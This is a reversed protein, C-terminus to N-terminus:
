PLSSQMAAYVRNLADYTYTVMENPAVTPDSQDKMTLINGLWDYSYTLDLLKVTTSQATSYQATTNATKGAAGKVSWASYTNTLTIPSTTSPFQIQTLRGLYDHQYNSAYTTIRSPEPGSKGSIGTSRGFDDYTFTVTERNPYVMQKVSDDPHYSWMWYYKGLDKSNEVDSIQRVQEIVRGRRDYKLITYGTADGVKTLHGIGASVVTPDDLYTDYRYEVNKNQDPDTRGACKFLSSNDVGHTRALPRNLEDYSTATICGMQDTQTVLNGYADYAYAWTGMNPDITKVKRGGVDYFTQGQYNGISYKTMRNLADYEYTATMGNPAVSEIINGWIDKKMTTTRNVQATAHTTAETIFRESAADFRYGTNVVTTDPATVATVRGMFDYTTLTQPDTAYLTKDKVTSTVDSTLKPLAETVVRGAWDYQVNQYIASNTTQDLVKIAPTITQILRGIGDYVKRTQLIPNGAKLRKVATETYYHHISATPASYAFQITPSAETDGPM